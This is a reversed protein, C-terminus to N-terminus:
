EANLEKELEAMAFSSIAMNGRLEFQWCNSKMTRALRVPRDSVVFDDFVLVKDNGKDAEAWVKLYCWAEAQTLGTITITYPSGSGGTKYAAERAKMSASLTDWENSDIQAVKFRAPKATRMFKSRWTWKLKTAADGFLKGAKLNGGNSYAIWRTGRAGYYSMAYIPDPVEFKVLGREQAGIELAYGTTAGQQVWLLRRNDFCAVTNIGVAAAYQDPTLYSATINQYGGYDIVGWGTKSPYIVGVDTSSVAKESICPEGNQLEVWQLSDPSVGSFVIPRVKTLAIFRDGFAGVGVVNYPLTYRNVIPWAHYQYPDCFCVQTGKYVGGVVGNIWGSVYSLEPTNQYATTLLAEGLNADLVADNFSTDNDDLEGVYLYSGSTEPTRYIRRKHPMTNAVANGFNDTGAWTPITAFNWSGDRNGSKTRVPSPGSELGDESVHTYVYSRTVVPGTGGVITPDPLAATPKYVAMWGQIGTSTVTIMETTWNWQSANIFGLTGVKGYSFADHNSRGRVSVEGILIGSPFAQAAIIKQRAAGGMQAVAYSTVRNEQIQDSDPHTYNSVVVWDDEDLLVDKSSLPTGAFAIGQTQQRDIDWLVKRGATGASDAVWAAGYYSTVRAACNNYFRIASITKGTIASGDSALQGGLPIKRWYWTGTAYTSLNGSEAALANQDNVGAGLRTSDSFLINVCGQGAVPAPSAPLYVMVHLYDTAQVVYASCTFSIYSSIASSIFEFCSTAFQRISVAKTNYQTGAWVNRSFLTGVMPKIGRGLLDCNIAETACNVPLQKDDVKPILGGFQEVKIVTL